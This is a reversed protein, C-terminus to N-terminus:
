AILGKVEVEIDKLSHALMAEEMDKKLEKARRKIVKLAEESLLDGFSEIHINQQTNM